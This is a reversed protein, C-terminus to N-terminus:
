IYSEFYTSDFYSKMYILVVKYITGSFCVPDAKQTAGKYLFSFNSMSILPAWGM